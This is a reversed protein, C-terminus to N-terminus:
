ERRAILGPIIDCQGKKQSKLKRMYESNNHNLFYSTLVLVLGAIFYGFFIRLIM